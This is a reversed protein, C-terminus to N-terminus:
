KSPQPGCEKASAEAAEADKAAKAAKKKADDKAVEVCGWICFLVFPIWFWPYQFMDHGTNWIDKIWRWIWVIAAGWFPFTVGLILLGFAFSLM